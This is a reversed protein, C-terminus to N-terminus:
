IVEQSTRMIFALAYYPNLVDQTTSLAAATAGSDVDHDHAGAWDSVGANVTHDHTDNATAGGWADAASNHHHGATAVTDGTGDQVLETSTPDGTVLTGGGHGHTDNDTDYSGPGHRHNSSTDTDLTGPGHTHELDKTASGGTAGVAYTDGAGIVFFNRLDQTGNNGDCLAWGTPIAGIAGSWMIIGGIPVSGQGIFIRGDVLYIDRDKPFFFPRLDNILDCLDRAM